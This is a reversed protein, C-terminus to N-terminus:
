HQGTLDDIIPCNSGEDGPCESIWSLLQQRILTLEALKKDVELLKQEATKKVNSSSRCPYNALEVLFKCQELNFGVARARAVIKLQEIQKDGYNRYGNESRLPEAVVGKSEYFRISKATLRTLKAVQSINM